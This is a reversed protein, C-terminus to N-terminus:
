RRKGKGREKKKRIRRSEKTQGEAMEFLRSLFGPQKKRLTPTKRPAAERAKVPELSMGATRRRVLIQEAIGLLTSTTWYLTLGSPMHYLLLVFFLPMWKMMKQSAEAQPDATKPMMKQNVVMTIAMVFPLLNVENGLVPLYWPLSFLTDPRSLDDIWLFGAQRLEIATRLARFLAIFIPLQFFMPWCGSLPSVGYRRHLAMIEQGLKQKDDGHKQRLEAIKPQLLQMRKMSTQSKVSLPHLVLKVLCTLLLIAVGYSPLVRYFGKLTAVLLRSISAFLGYDILRELGADYAALASQQKPVLVFRYNRQLTQGALLTEETSRLLVTANNRALERRNKALKPAMSGRAWRGLANLGETDVVQRSIVSNVWEPNDPLTVVAFYHSVVGAWAINTSKNLRPGEKALEAPAVKKIDYRGVGEWIGVRTGLYRTDPFEPEIGAAGRQDFSFTLAEDSINTFETTTELSYQGDSLTVTKRIRLAEDIDAEFTLRDEYEEVLEYVIDAINRKEKFYQGDPSSYKFELSEITDSYCPVGLSRVIAEPYASELLVRNLRVQEKPSREMRGLLELATRDLSIGEWAAPAYFDESQLVKGNLEKLIRDRTKDDPGGHAPATKLKAKLEDSIVAWIRGGVTPSPSAAQETIRSTLQRWNLVDAVSLLSADKQYVDKVLTLAPRTGGLMYPARYEKLQAQLLAAGKNTWVTRLKDNSLTIGTRVPRVPAIPQAAARRPERKEATAAAGPSPPSLIESDPSPREITQQAQAGTGRAEPQAPQGVPRRGKTYRPLVLQYWVVLTVLSIIMFYLFSKKDM